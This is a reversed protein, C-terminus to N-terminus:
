RCWKQIRPACIPTSRPLLAAKAEFGPAGIVDIDEYLHRNTRAPPAAMVADAGKRAASATEGARMLAALTPDSSHAFGTREGFVGRLGFGREADFNAVKLRGDDFALSESTSTELFLEGDDAGSLSSELVRAADEADFDFSAFPDATM